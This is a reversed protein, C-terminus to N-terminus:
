SRHYMLSDVRTEFLAADPHAALLKARIAETITTGALDLATLLVGTIPEYPSRVAQIDPSIERVQEVIADALLPSRHRLMGGSLVLTFPTEEIGVRRAAVNAYDGLKRGHGRVIRRAVRDGADAADLLLPTLGDLRLTGLAQSQRSTLLHLVEEVSERGLFNLVQDKLATPEELGLEALLVANLAKRSLEVGGGVLQWFSTHWIRGDPGRAGTAGSTGCVVSVGVNDPSGNHLAGLGDNQVQVIRGFGRARMETQLLAIDEPWDAGALNFVSAVLEGPQVQAAQLAQMIAYEINALAFDANSMGRTNVGFSNYIDSIGGRGAGVISGDLRAVLAITKSNGGDVALVYSM